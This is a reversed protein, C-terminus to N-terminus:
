RMDFYRVGNYEVVFEQSEHWGSTSYSPSYMVLMRHPVAMNGAFIYDVADYCDQNPTKYLSYADYQFSHYTYGVSGGCYIMADRFAQAQLCCATYGGDGFEHMVVQAIMERETDSLSIAQPNYDYDPNDIDILWTKQESDEASEDVSEEASGEASEEIPEEASKEVSEITTPQITPQTSIQTPNETASISSKMSETIATSPHTFYVSPAEMPKTIVEVGVTKSGVSNKNKVADPQSDFFAFFSIIGAIIAFIVVLIIVFLIRMVKNEKSEDIRYRKGRYFM